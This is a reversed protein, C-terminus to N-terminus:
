AASKRSVPAANGVVETLRTRALMAAQEQIGRAVRVLESFDYPVLAEGASSKLRSGSLTLRKVTMPAYTSRELAGTFGPTDDLYGPLRSGTRQIAQCLTLWAEFPQGRDVYLFSMVPHRGLYPAAQEVSEVCLMPRGLRELEARSWDDPRGVVYGDSDTAALGGAYEIYCRLTAAHACAILSDVIEREGEPLAPIIVGNAGCVAAWEILRLGSRKPEREDLTLYAFIERRIM